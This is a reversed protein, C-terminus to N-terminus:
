FFLSYIQSDCKIVPVGPLIYSIKNSYFTSNFKLFKSIKTISSASLNISVLKYNSILFIKYFIGLYLLVPNNEAVKDPILIYSNTLYPKLFGTDILNLFSLSYSCFNEIGSFRLM